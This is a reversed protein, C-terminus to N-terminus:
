KLNGRGIGTYTFGYGRMTEPDLLNRADVIRPMAMKAALEGYDLKAFEPWETLILLADASSVAEQPDDCCQLDPRVRRAEATALPDYARVRAGEKELQDIVKLSVSDRLDNTGAKFALGFVAVTRQYLLDGISGKLKNVVVEVQRNNRDLVAQLVRPGYSDTGGISILTKLDKELCPGGFGVGAELYAHGIRGDYGMGRAVDKVDAGVKECLWAIENIFSIRTALFANSAYKIMQASALDVEVVPVEGRGNRTAPRDPESLELNLARREIIPAYLRRMIKRAKESCAGIVFRDPCFFDYMGKGERLFEPNSVIDFAKGEQKERSLISRVLPIAGVPVTSKVVIVKYSDLHHSLDEAVRIVHSLDTQGDQRSPTGVAIFVVDSDAIGDALNTTFRIRGADLNRRLVLEMGEEYIPSAGTALLAIREADIDVNVVSHGIEALGVGTVLGVYGAGGIVCVNMQNRKAIESM